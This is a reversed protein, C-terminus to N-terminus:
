STPGHKGCRAIPRLSLRVTRLLNFALSEVTSGGRQIEQPLVSFNKELYLLLDVLAKPDTPMCILLNCASAQMEEYLVVQEERAAEINAPPLNQSEAATLWAVAKAYRDRSAKHEDIDRQVCERSRRDEEEPENTIPIARRKPFLAPEPFTIVNDFM